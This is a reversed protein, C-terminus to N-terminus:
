PSVGAYLREASEQPVFKGIHGGRCRRYVCRLRGAAIDASSIARGVGYIRALDRLSLLRKAPPAAIEGREARLEERLIPLLEAKIAEVLPQIASDLQTSM